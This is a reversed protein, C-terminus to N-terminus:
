KSLSTAFRELFRLKARQSERQKEPALIQCGIALQTSVRGPFRRTENFRTQYEVSRRNTGTRGHRGGATSVSESHICDQTTKNM